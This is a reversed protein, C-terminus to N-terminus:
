DFSQPEYHEDCTAQGSSNYTAPRECYECETGDLPINDDFQENSEYGDQEVGNCELEKDNM